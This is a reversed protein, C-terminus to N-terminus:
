TWKRLRKEAALLETLQKVKQAQSKEAVLTADDTQVVIADKLGVLAIPTRRSRADFVINRQSDLHVFDGVACNGDKDPKLHRALATWAGLDDWRFGGDAIVVNQAKEMLAYDISIKELAPYERKLIRALQSPNAAAQRWRDCADAMEPRHERLAEGIASWSWLFMGANWVYKGSRLYAKAQQIKPKEVFRECRYFATQLPGDGAPPPLPKGKKIYGYGTAPETPQIGIAVLSRCRSAWDFGDRLTQRFLAEDPILHDAPLVAMVGQNASRQGVVAAGLAIAACTDRGCPEAIINKPPLSPLQAATQAAQAANTVVLINPKPVLRAARDYCQQLLSRKGLLAVLQKPTKQRSVPWFREGRGGALILAFWDKHGATRAAAGDKGAIKAKMRSKAKM